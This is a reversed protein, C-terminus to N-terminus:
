ISKAASRKIPRSRRKKASWPYDAVVCYLALLMANLDHYAVKRTPTDENSHMDAHGMWNGFIRIAHLSNASWASISGELYNIQKFLNKQYVKGKTREGVLWEILKRASIGLTVLNIETGKLQVLIEELIALAEENDNGNARIVPSNQFRKLENILDKLQLKQREDISLVRRQIAPRGLQDNIASNLEHIAERKLDFIVLQRLEPVNQFGLRIGELLDPILQQLKAGQRGTNLLPTAVSRCSIKHLPLLALLRFMQQFVAIEQESNAQLRPSEVVVLRKFRTSSDMPWLVPKELKDLEGSVWARITPVATFDLERPLEAVTINCCHKLAAIMTGEQPEYFGDWASVVLLDTYLGEQFLDGFRLELTGGPVPDFANLFM